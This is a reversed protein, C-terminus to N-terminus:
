ATVVEASQAAAAAEAEEADIRSQTSWLPIWSFLVGWGTGIIMTIKAANLIGFHPELEQVMVGALLTAFPIVGWTVTRFVGQSM